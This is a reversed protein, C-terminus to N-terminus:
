RNNIKSLSYWTGQGQYSQRLILNFIHAEGVKVRTVTFGIVAENPACLVLCQYQVRLCEYFIGTSWPDPSVECEIAYVADVDALSMHRITYGDWFDYLIDNDM